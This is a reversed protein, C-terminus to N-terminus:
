VFCLGNYFILCDKYKLLYSALILKNFVLNLLKKNKFKLIQFM